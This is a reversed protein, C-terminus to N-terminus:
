EVHSFSLFSFSLFFFFPIPMTLSRIVIWFVILFFLIFYFGIHFEEIKAQYELFWRSFWLNSKKRNKKYNWHTYFRDSKSIKISSLLHFRDFLFLMSYWYYLIRIRYIVVLYTIFSFFRSILDWYFYNVFWIYIYLSVYVITLTLLYKVLDGDKGTTLAFLM